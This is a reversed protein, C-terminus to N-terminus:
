VTTKAGVAGPSRVPVRVIAVSAGPVGVKVAFKAPLPTVIGLAVTVGGLMLKPECVTPVVVAVACVTVIIFEPLPVSFRDLTESLPGKVSVVVHPAVRAALVLQVYENLNAGDTAPDAPPARVAVVFAAPPKSAIGSSPVPAVPGIGVACGALRLKPGWGTRVLLAGWVTINLLWPLVANVIAPTWADSFKESVFLQGALRAEPALQVILTEKAGVVSVKVDVPGDYKGVPPFMKTVIPAGPLGKEIGTPPSAVGDIPAVVFRIMVDECFGEVTPCGTVNVAVIVGVEPVPVGVPV